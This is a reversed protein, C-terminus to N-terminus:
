PQAKKSRMAELFERNKAILVGQERIIFGALREFEDPPPEKSGAAYERLSEPSCGMAKRLKEVEGALSAAM